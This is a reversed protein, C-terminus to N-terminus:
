PLEEAREERPQAQPDVGPMSRTGTGVDRQDAADADEEPRVPAGGGPRRAPQRPGDARRSRVVLVTGALVAGTGRLESVAAAVDRRHTSGLAAVLVVLDAHEAMTSTEAATLVPPGHLVVHDVDAPVQGLLWGLSREDLMEGVAHAPESGASLRMLREGLEESLAERLPVRGALVDELGVDPPGDPSGSRPTRQDAEVLLVRSGGTALAAATGAAVTAAVDATAASTFLTVAPTRGHGRAM